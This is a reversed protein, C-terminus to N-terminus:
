SAQWGAAWVACLVFEPFYWEAPPGYTYRTAEAIAAVLDPRSM